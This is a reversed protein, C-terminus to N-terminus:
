GGVEVTKMKGLDRTLFNVGVTEKVDVAALEMLAELRKRRAAGSREEGRASKEDVWTISEVKFSMGDHKGPFSRSKIGHAVTGTYSELTPLILVTIHLDKDKVPIM